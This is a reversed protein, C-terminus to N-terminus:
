NEKLTEIKKVLRVREKKMEYIYMSNEQIYAQINICDIVYRVEAFNDLMGEM